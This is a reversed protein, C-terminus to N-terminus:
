GPPLRLVFIAPSYGVVFVYKGSPDLDCALLHDKPGLSIVGRPRNSEISWLRVTGDDASSVLTKSDPTFKMSNPRRSHGGWIRLKTKKAFNWLTITGDGLGCALLKGDPSFAVSPGGFKTDKLEVPKGSALEWMNVKEDFGMSALWKGDRSIAVTAVGRAHGTLTHQLHGDATRYVRIASPERKREDWGAALYDGDASVVVTNVLGPISAITTARGWEGWKWLKVVGSTSGVGVFRGDPSTSMSLVEFDTKVTEPEGSQDVSWLKLTGDASGSVVTRSDKSFAVAKVARSHGRFIRRMQGTAVEWLGVTTDHSATALWRGDPSFALRNVLGYHIPTAEGLVGVLSKPAKEPDGGGAATLAELPITERRMAELIPSPRITPAGGHPTAPDAQRVPVLAVRVPPSKGSTLEIERTIAVFGDKSIRLKHQGPAVTIEIPKNDGPVNVTLKEDDIIVEAGPQDIELLVLAEGEPTKVKKKFLVPALLWTALGLVVVAAAIAGVMVWPQWAPRRRSPRRATRTEASRSHPKQAIRDLTDAVVQASAPRKEPEKALLDMILKSLTPPLDPDIDRPPRPNETAVAMLTSIPDTGRFPPEGTAMRYLICGLSFLDCHPGITKGQAQDPAMYAPTGVIAGQQTLQADDASGRALGFDLIKVRGRSGELWVNAPKIDRHTLGHEHAAQLGDSIERGIRLVEPLPLKGERELRVDLPEGELFEVALFPAGRDEGVQHITVIHDHKLAAAVRAERLFRQKASGSAALGPLMAKLAVLRQLGPDEAQFVVGMGGAGLVRPVRYPGLRGLEDPAQPPALFDCLEPEQNEAQGVQTAAGRDPVVTGGPSRVAASGSPGLPAITRAEASAPPVTREDAGPSAASPGTIAAQCHPCKGKKGAMAAKVKLGKGCGPCTVLITPQGPAKQAGAASSRLGRLREVLRAVTEEGPGQGRTRAQRLLEVLTDKDSMRDLRQVCADCSELHVLLTDVQESSLQGSVLQQFSAPDPCARATAM